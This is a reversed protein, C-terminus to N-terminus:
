IAPLATVVPPAVGHTFASAMEGYLAPHTPVFRSTNVMAGDFAVLGASSTSTFVRASSSQNAAIEQFGIMDQTALYTSGAVADAHRTAIERASPAQLVMIETVVSTPKAKLVAETTQAKAVGVEPPAANVMPGTLLMAAALAALVFKKM